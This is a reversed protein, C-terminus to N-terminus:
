KEELANFLHPYGWPEDSTVLVAGTCGIRRFDVSREMDYPGTAGGPIEWYEHVYYKGSPKFLVVQAVKYEITVSM